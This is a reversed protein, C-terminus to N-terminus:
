LINAYLIIQEGNSELILEDQTLSIIKKEGGMDSMDSQLSPIAETLVSDILDDKYEAFFADMSPDGTSIEFSILDYYMNDKDLDLLLINDNISWQYPFGVMLEFKITIGDSSNQAKMHLSLAGSSNEKFDMCMTATIGEEMDSETAIWEGYISQASISSTMATLASMLIILFLKKM